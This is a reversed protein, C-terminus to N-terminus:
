RHSAGTTATAWTSTSASSTSSTRRSWCWATPTARHSATDQRAATGPYFLMQLALPMGADRALIACVAALTGGASDGGVALRRTDLGLRAGENAVFAFADWADNSATPFKHAPALRYDVSVVACGSKLSLVRCLTDHTRINGVTFGGGHFYVLVPLKASSPAYLRAPLEFGDRAAISFDEIRALDPKPVELVGAGKEYSAKAEDPTLQDLSPHGARAMREVVSAMKATLSTGSAVVALTKNMHLVTQEQYIRITPLRVTGLM